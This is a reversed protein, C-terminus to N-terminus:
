YRRGFSFALTAFLMGLGVVFADVPLFLSGKVAFKSGRLRGLFTIFRSNLLYFAASAFFALVLWTLNQLLVTLVVSAGALYVLPVALQYFLPVSTFFPQRWKRLRMCTLAAARNFDERLVGLLTYGKLHVVRVDPDLRIGAGSAWARQGFETDEATSAGRYHEDFGGLKLFRDRRIAAVSTYFLGIRDRGAFDAYTFYMWLNKFQSAFSHDPIAPDLLGVVADCRSEEFRHRLRAFLDAPVLIDADTFFLTDGRAEAAGRNKAAAAGVNPYLRIVRCGAQAALAGSRDTSGDDVVLVEDPAPRSRAIASLVSPLTRAGNYVPIIVSISLPNSIPLNNRDHM